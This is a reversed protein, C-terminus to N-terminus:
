GTTGRSTSMPKLAQRIIPPASTTRSSAPMWFVNWESNITNDPATPWCIWSPRPGSTGIATAAFRPLRQAKATPTTMAKAMKATTSPIEPTM